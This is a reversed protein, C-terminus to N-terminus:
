QDIYEDIADRLADGHLNAGVLVGDKDVLYTQPIARIGYVNAGGQASRGDDYTQVWDMNEEVIFNKWTEVEYDLSVGLIVFDQDRYEAWTEKLSPLVARCPGCWSAWFDIYVVKGKFDSLRVQNGNQDQLVFDPAPDGVSVKIVSGIPEDLGADNCASFLFLVALAPLLFLFRM